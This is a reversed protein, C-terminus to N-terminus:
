SKGMAAIFRNAEDISVNMEAVLKAVDSEVKAVDDELSAIAQANLNHKLFLVQDRFAALVPQMKKEARRMAEILQAYSKKTARLKAESSRKLDQNTYQALEKEWEEFLDEAVNEISEIRDSVNKAHTECDELEGALKKQFSELDGGRFGTIESFKALADQFEAKAEQQDDRAGQVRDVLLERKHKGFTELTKYYADSRCGSGALAAVPVLLLACSLCLDRATPM